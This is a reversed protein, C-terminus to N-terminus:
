MFATSINNGLYHDTIQKYKFNHILLVFDEANKCFLKNTM